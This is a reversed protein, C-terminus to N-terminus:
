GEMVESNDDADTAMRERLSRISRELSARITDPASGMLRAVARKSIDGWYVGLLVLRDFEPLSLLANPDLRRETVVEDEAKLCEPM